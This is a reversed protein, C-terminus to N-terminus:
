EDKILGLLEILVTKYESEQFKEIEKKACKIYNNLLDQTKEIGNEFEEVSGAFIVPATYIGDKFDSKSTKANILDDRIQFAVGFAKAFDSLNYGEDSNRLESVNELFNKGRGTPVIHSETSAVLSLSGCIATEFLKATKQKTKKIYEEITPIKFKSFQQSVEGQCMDDLTQAFMYIIEFSGIASVKKLALSILYDGTIVALKNEFHTNLTEIGRRTQSEDIIDDHILSANHVLEIAAQLAIQKQTIECDFAKLVLFAVVARIHKSPANLIELLKSKLPEELEIGSLLEQKVQEIEDAVVGFIESYKEQFSM